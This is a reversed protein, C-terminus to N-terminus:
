EETSWGTSPQGGEVGPTHPGLDEQISPRRMGPDDHKQPESHPPAWNNDGGDLTGPAPKLEPRDSV